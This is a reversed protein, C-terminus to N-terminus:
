SRASSTTIRLIPLALTTHPIWVTLSLGPCGHGHRRAGACRKQKLGPTGSEQEGFLGFKFDPNCVFGSRFGPSLKVKSFFGPKFGPDKDLYLGPKFSPDKILIYETSSDLWLSWSLYPRSARQLDSVESPASGRLPESPSSTLPTSSAAHVLGSSGPAHAADLASYDEQLTARRWGAM